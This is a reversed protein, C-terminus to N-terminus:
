FDLWVRKVAEVDYSNHYFLRLEYEGSPLGEISFENGFRPAEGEVWAWRLVNDWDNSAGVNYLGIWDQNGEGSTTCGVDLTSGHQIARHFDPQYIIDENRAKFEVKKVLNYSNHYFLRLEYDGESLDSIYIRNSQHSRHWTWGLVNEWANSTGKKYVGVWTDSGKFSADFAIDRGNPGHLLDIFDEDENGAEFTVTKSYDTIYSNDLFYRIDYEGDGLDAINICGYMRDCKELDKAWSWKLVNEWDNSAGKKYVGVWNNDYNAGPFKGPTDDPSQSKDYIAYQGNQIKYIDKIYSDALLPLVFAAILLLQKIM